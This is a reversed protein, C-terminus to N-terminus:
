SSNIDKRTDEILEELLNMAEASSGERLLDRVALLSRLLKRSFAIFEIDM